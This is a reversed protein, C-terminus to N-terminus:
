GAVSLAIEEGGPGLFAVEPAQEDDGRRAGGGRREGGPEHPPERGGGRAAADGVDLRDEALAFRLGGEREDGDFKDATPEGNGGPEGETALPRADLDSGADRVDDATE